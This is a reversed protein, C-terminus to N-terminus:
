LMVAVLRATTEEQGRGADFRVKASEMGPELATAQARIVRCDRDADLAQALVTALGGYDVVYGLAPLGVKRADLEARGFGGRQSVHIREIPTAPQLSEWVGLRELILRSGHSLAIPRPDQKAAQPTRAELLGVALSAGRLALATAAGVPGGGVILVDYDPM